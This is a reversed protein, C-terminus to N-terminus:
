RNLAAAPQVRHGAAPHSAGLVPTGTGFLRERLTSGEYDTAAVGRERLIPLVMEVFDLTSGPQIVPTLLFGDLDATEALACIADAVEEPTGVVPKSRVGHAHWDALVDGVTLDAFRSVQTQSLETRLEAMPTEPAYSSLDLGTFMAYSAVAVAPDQAQLVSEYKAQAEQRTPAIVCSFAAMLKVSDADRGSAVAEDRIAKVQAAMKTASAGGLFICEGHRGGFQRGRDSSGAQFLVPTGQPSYSTNGYGESRFYPGEHSIRHVKAPDAFRGDKNRELADPEWSGEWLKYVVEMFDDAMDYREDHAVMPIGFAAAATEATGTTVVNWGLRGNSLQDLSSMRRAFSYPQEILTSGTIVFGLDTTASVMAAAVIAPDLRPLDLSEVTCIEPREGNVESWGWADALFVFDLRAAECIRAINKWYDLNDFHDRENEPHRWTATGSDNAQANEFLGFRLQKM